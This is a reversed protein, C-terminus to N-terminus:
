NDTFYIIQGGYWGTETFAGDTKLTNGTIYVREIHHNGNALVGKAWTDPMNPFGTLLITASPPNTTIQFDLNAIVLKGMKKVWMYGYNGVYSTNKTIGSTSINQPTIPDTTNYEIPIARHQWKGDGTSVPVWTSTTNNTSYDWQNNQFSSSSINGKISVNGSKGTITMLDYLDPDTGYAGVAGQIRLYNSDDAGGFQPIIKFKDGYNGEKWYLGKTNDIKDVALIGTIDTDMGIELLEQNAGAESVKGIAMAKGSPNFNMLDFGSDLSQVNTYETFYDKVYFQIDYTNNTSFQVKTGSASAAKIGDSFLMGNASYSSVGTTLPIYTYSGTNHVRYGVKYIASPTNKDVIPSISGGYSIYMYEGNNDINGNADCRQVQATSITPNSYSYFYFRFDLSYKGIRGRSDTVKFIDTYTQYGSNRLYNTTVPNGTLTYGDLNSTYNSITSGYTGSATITAKIKSKGQVWVNWSSPVSGVEELTVNSITPVVSSPVNLTLAVSKSGILTSGNYTECTIVCTGQTANPIQNMLNNPITWTISNEVNAGINDRANGFIYYINHKFSSSYRNTTIVVSQGFERSSYNLTPQSARPITTPTFTTAGTTGNTSDTIYWKVRFQVNELTGDPNHDLTLTWSKTVNSSKNISFTQKNLSTWSEASAYKWQMTMSANSYNHTEGTTTMKAPITFTSQNTNIDTTETITQIAVSGNFLQIDLKMKKM